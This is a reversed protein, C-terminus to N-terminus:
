KAEEVKVPNAETNVVEVAAPIPSQAALMAKDIRESQRDLRDHIDAKSRINQYMAIAALALVGVKAILIDVVSAVAEIWDKGNAAFDQATM